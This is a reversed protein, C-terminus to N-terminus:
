FFGRLICWFLWSFAFVVLLCRLLVHGFLLLVCAGRRDYLEIHLACSFLVFEGGGVGILELVLGVFYRVLVCQCGRLEVFYCLVALFM